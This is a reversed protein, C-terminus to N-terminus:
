AFGTAYNCTSKCFKDLPNAAICNGDNQKQDGANKSQKTRHLESNGPNRFCDLLTGTRIPFVLFFLNGEFLRSGHNHFADCISLDLLLTFTTLLQLHGFIFIRFLIHHRHCYRCGLLLLVHDILDVGNRLRNSSRCLM